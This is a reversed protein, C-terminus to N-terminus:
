APLVGDKSVNKTVMEAAPCVSVQQLDYVLVDKGPNETALIRVAAVVDREDVVFIEGRHRYDDHDRLQEMTVGSAGRRLEPFHVGFINGKAVRILKESM